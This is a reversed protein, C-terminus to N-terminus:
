KISLIVKGPPTRKRITLFSGVNAIIFRFANKMEGDPLNRICNSVDLFMQVDNKPNNVYDGLVKHVLSKITRLVGFSTRKYEIGLGQLLTDSACFHPHKTIIDWLEQNTNIEFPDPYTFIRM